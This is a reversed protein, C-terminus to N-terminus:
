PLSHLYRFSLVASIVLGGVFAVTCIIVYLGISPPQRQTIVRAAVIAMAIM